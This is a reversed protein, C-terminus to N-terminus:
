PVADILLAVACHGFLPQVLQDSLRPGDGIPLELDLKETRAHLSKSERKASGGGCPGIM